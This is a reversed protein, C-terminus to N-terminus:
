ASLIVVSHCQGGFGHTSHALATKVKKSVQHEGAQGKIQLAAEAVRYLGRAPYPNTALVGGSPNVPLEGDMQTAGSDIMNGGEGEGCLGLQECWLLEQFAYPECLEAVDIKKRPDRIGAMKYARAAASKLQGNLLDRDGPNFHDMSCGYGTLWVPKGTLKLAKEEAAVLVSVVGDSKPACELAKLPDYVRESKMVDELSVRKKVHAYPNFLANSLNKVAVKACQEESIGYREMYQRMQMAAVSSENLGVPRLYFPDGYFSTIPDNDPNESGKVLATVLVSDYYGSMIRMCAYIFSFVSEEARSGEKMFAGIGDWDFANACSLGSHFIDASGAIICGVEERKLGAKDLVEKNVQYTFDMLSERSESGSSQAVHTIAVRRM